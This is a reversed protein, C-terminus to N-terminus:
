CAFGFVSSGVLFLLTRRGGWRQELTPALFYLGLLAGVLHMAAGGGYPKHILGATVLRWIEGHLIASSNGALLLFSNPDAGGFNIAVAFSAWVFLLLGMASLLARGPRPFGLMVQEDRM